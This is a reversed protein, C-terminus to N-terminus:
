SGSDTGQADSVGEIIPQNLREKTEKIDKEGEFAEILEQLPESVRHLFLAVRHVTFYIKKFRRM